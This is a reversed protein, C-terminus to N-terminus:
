RRAPPLPRALLRGTASGSRHARREEDPMAASIARDIAVWASSFGKFERLLAHARAPDTSLPPWDDTPTSLREWVSMTANSIVELLLRDTQRDPVFLAEETEWGSVFLAGVFKGDTAVSIRRARLISAMDGAEVLDVLAGVERTRGVDEAVAEILRALWRAMEPPALEVVRDAIVGADEFRPMESGDREPATNVARARLYGILKDLM